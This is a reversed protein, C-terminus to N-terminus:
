VSQSAFVEELVVLRWELSAIMHEWEEDTVEEIDMEDYVSVYGHMSARVSEALDLDEQQTSATMSTEATTKKAKPVTDTSGTKRRGIKASRRALTSSRLEERRKKWEEMEEEFQTLPQNTLIAIHIINM